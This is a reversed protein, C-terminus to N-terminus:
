GVCLVRGRGPLLMTAGDRRTTSRFYGGDETRYSRQWNYSTEDDLVMQTYSGFCDGHSCIPQVWSPPPLNDAYYNSNLENAYFQGNYWDSGFKRHVIGFYGNQLEQSGDYKFTFASFKEQEVCDVGSNVDEWTITGQSKPAIYSPYNSQSVCDEYIDTINIAQSSNNIITYSHPAEAFAVENGCLLFWIGMSLRSFRHLLRAPSAYM